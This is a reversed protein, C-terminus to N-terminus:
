VEFRSTKLSWTRERHPNSSDTTNAKVRYLWLSNGDRDYKKKLLTTYTGSEYVDICMQVAKGRQGRQYVEAARKGGGVV